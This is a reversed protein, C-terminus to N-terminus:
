YNKFFDLMSDAMTGQGPGIEMLKLSKVARNEMQNVIFNSVVYGYYPKFLESPTVWANEPYLKEM